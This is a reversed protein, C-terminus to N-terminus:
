STSVKARAASRRAVAVILVTSLVTGFLVFLGTDGALYENVIVKEDTLIIASGIWAFAANHAFHALVVPWVSQSRTRLVGFLFSFAIVSASFLPLVIMRDGDAHYFPTFLIYMLHWVVWVVGIVLYTWKEGLWSQIRPQLYGRWGIEEAFALITGTICLSLLDQWAASTPETLHSLGLVVTVGFAAISVGVTAALTVPWWRIGLRTIGLRRWGEARYGDRTIVFMMLATVLLPSVALVLGGAFNATTAAIGIVMVVFIIASTRDSLNKFM